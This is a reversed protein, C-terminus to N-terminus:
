KYDFLRGLSVTNKESTEGEALICCMTLHFGAVTHVLIVAELM